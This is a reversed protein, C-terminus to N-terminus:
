FLVKKGNVIYIGKQAKNVRQGAINYIAGDGETTAPALSEIATADEPANFLLAEKAETGENLFLTLYAKYAAIKGSTARYFGVEKGEPKALVYQGEADIEEYTGRLDNDLVAVSPNKIECTVVGSKNVYKQLKGTIIVKQGVVLPTTPDPINAWYAEFVKGGDTEDAM